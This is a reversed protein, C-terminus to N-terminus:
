GMGDWAFSRCVAADSCVELKRNLQIVVAAATSLALETGRRLQAVFVEYVHDIIM